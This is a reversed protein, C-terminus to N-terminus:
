AILWALPVTLDHSSSLGDQTILIRKSPIDMARLHEAEARKAQTGAGDYDGGQASVGYVRLNWTAANAGLYQHLLPLKAALFESPNLKEGAAKDWASLVVCVKRPGIDLPPESLLSLLSVIQVQTPAMDPSWPIPEQQADDLDGLAGAHRNIDLVTLPYTIRVANIFLLINGDQLMEGVDVTCVRQEWMRSYTEGAVDPFTIRSAQGSNDLLNLSVVQNDTSLTRNQEEARLWQDAIANIHTYDGQAIGNFKLTTPVERAFILTWLAALFTTKGSGPLGVVLIQKPAM